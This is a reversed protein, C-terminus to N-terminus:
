LVSNNHWHMACVSLLPPGFASREATQPDSSSGKKLILPIISYFISRPWLIQHALCLSSIIQFHTFRLWAAALKRLLLTWSAPKWSADKFFFLHFFQFINSLPFQFSVINFFFSGDVVPTTNNARDTCRLASPFQWLHWLPHPQAADIVTGDNTFTCKLRGMAFIYFYHSFASKFLRLLTVVWASHHVHAFSCAGLVDTKRPM